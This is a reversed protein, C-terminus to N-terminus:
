VLLPGKRDVWFYTSGAGSWGFENKGTLSLASQDVM